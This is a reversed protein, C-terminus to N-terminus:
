SWRAMYRSVSPDFWTLSFEEVRDNNAWARRHIWGLVSSAPLELLKTAWEPAAECSVEDTVRSIWFDFHERYHIYLSEHLEEISLTDAHRGDFWIEEAAIPQQNLKRLRRVRWLLREPEDYGLQKAVYPNALKDVAFAHANPMGGGKLLELRFFQYIAGGEPPMKVYNGSGQRRELLGEKELSKLAKRLTGVAVDLDKALQAETPLREGPVWHGAAIERHLLESIQLYLPLRNSSKKASM